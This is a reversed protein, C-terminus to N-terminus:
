APPAIDRPTHDRTGPETYWAMRKLGSSNHNGMKKRRNPVKTEETTKNGTSNISMGDRHQVRKPAPSHVVLPGQQHAAHDVEAAEKKCEAVHYFVRTFM